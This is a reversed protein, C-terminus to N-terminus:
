LHPSCTVYAVVGGPRAAEVASTLLSVQLRKLSEVDHAGRRWRAEPRRRLSGLGSCPVDALVRDFAAPRWAPVTGDATLARAHRVGALAKAALRARHEPADAAALMAGREAALGALLRAKGGPGACMDLWALDQGSIQARALALVALQSAEDQVGARGDAVARIAAPDGHDLYGGF